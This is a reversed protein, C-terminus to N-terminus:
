STDEDPSAVLDGVYFTLHGTYTVPTKDSKEFRLNTITGSKHWAIACNFNNSACINFDFKGEECICMPIINPIRNNGSDAFCDGIYLNYVDQISDAQFTCLWYKVIMETQTTCTVGLNCVSQLEGGTLCQRLVCCGCDEQHVTWSVSVTTANGFAKVAIARDANTEPLPTREVPTNLDFSLSQLNRICLTRPNGTNFRGVPSECFARGEVKTIFIPGRIDQGECVM